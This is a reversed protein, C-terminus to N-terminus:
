RVPFNNLRFDRLPQLTGVLSVSVSPATGVREQYASIAPM